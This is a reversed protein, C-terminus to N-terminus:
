PLFQSPDFPLRRRAKRPDGGLQKLMTQMQQFGKLLRNVATVDTGSGAAIRKRRSGNILEPRRREDVTMSLIIAEMHRLDQDSPAAAMGKLRAGGPLMSLIGDLPGMKKLQRVQDIFDELTLKGEQIRRGLHEAQKTDVGAQAKEILTLVDGMGLIRSAMRDPHFVEFDGPKEGVGAFQIPRDLIARLSVAAGGRSDGDLKSLIVADLPATAHFREAVAVAEQGTMADLVLFTRHPQVAERVQRLETLMEEDIHLRGATDVVIVDQNAHAAEQRAKRAIDMASLQFPAFAALGQHEGLLRLQEMAAPRHVDTGVLLPRHGDRRALLALKVATTTKGSGQLGALLFVTPPASQYTLGAGTGAGGLLTVLEEHVIKVIQQGPTLSELVDSGVSRGRVRAIFDRAVKYNVDAELLALRVERLGADVDAETLRGRGTLKKFAEDLRATLTDFM